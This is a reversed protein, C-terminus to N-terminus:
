PSHEEVAHQLAKRVRLGLHTLRFPSWRGLPDTEETLSVCVGPAVEHRSLRCLCVGQSTNKPKREPARPTIFMIAAIQEQTLTAVVKNVVITLFPDPSEKDVALNLHARMIADRAAPEAVRLRLRAIEALLLRDDCTVPRLEPDTWGAALYTNLFEERRDQSHHEDSIQQMVGGDVEPHRM